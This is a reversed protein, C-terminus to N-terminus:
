RGERRLRRQTYPCVVFCKGCLDADIGTRARMLEHQKEFCRQRDFLDERDMGPRWLAGKLAGAPCAEVCIRCAGCRSETVAEKVPLPADTVLSSLRLASGYEPTVLLCSKGIWGLGARTAVTKHPLPTRWQGDQRVAGTTQAFARWGREELWAAGATVIADLRANLAHYTDYYAKTPGERIAEVIPAPVPVAVSVGTTLPGETVGTLDGFGVLAAGANRLLRELGESLCLIKEQKM